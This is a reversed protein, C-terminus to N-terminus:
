HIENKYYSGLPLLLFITLHYVVSQNKFSFLIHKNTYMESICLFRQVNREKPFGVM